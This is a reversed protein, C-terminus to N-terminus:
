TETNKGKSFPKLILRTARDYTFYNWIWSLLIMIRNRFGVISMLHVFLWVFWAFFGQFKIFPLDVVARNRGITAMSGKDHYKFTKFEKKRKLILNRLNKALLQGQQMAVPAVQPHGNPTEESIMSAIDGIAFINEYGVVKNTQDVKLRNGRVICDPSLGDILSGTVGAAWVVTRSLIKKGNSLTVERGDYDKVTTNLWVNVDFDKLYDYAKESAKESMGNLLRGAGEILHIDMQRFDLEPHDNPLVHLKLEGLAGAVEVGTPGGGVVVFDILSQQEDRDKVLLAKEINQLIHTRLDLAEPLQKMPFVLKALTANGFYNTKTGCAIVLFDYSLEGISTEITNKEPNINKVRGLRFFFNEKGEFIKRLPGAIASPDLGATAVQYLLPQFTHYNYRDFMVVQIDKHILNKALEIGGFGGGIIVVRPRNLEPISISSEGHILLHLDDPENNM